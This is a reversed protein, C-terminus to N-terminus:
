LLMRARRFDVALITNQIVYFLRGLTLRVDFWNEAPHAEHYGRHGGICVFGQSEGLSVIDQLWGRRASDIHTYFRGLGSMLNWPIPDGNDRLYRVAPPDYDYNTCDVYVQFPIGPGGRVEAIVSPYTARVVKWRFGEVGPIKHPGGRCAEVQRRFIARVAAPDAIEM